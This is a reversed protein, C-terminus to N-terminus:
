CLKCFKRCHSERWQWFAQNTCIDSQYEHCNSITDVCPIPSATPCFGCHVPCYRHSWSSYIGNCAEPRYYGSCDILDECKGPAQTLDKTVYQSGSTTIVPPPGTYVSTSIVPTVPKSTTPPATCANTCIQVDKADGLCNRGNYSPTPKTCTRYRSQLGIGCAPKCAGWPGWDSWGGDIASPARTVKVPCINKNCGHLNCCQVCGIVPPPRTVQRRGIVGQDLLGTQDIGRCFEQEKCGLSYFTPNSAIQYTETYCYEHPRCARIDHCDDLNTINTCSFCDLADTFVIAGTKLMFLIGLVAEIFLRINM